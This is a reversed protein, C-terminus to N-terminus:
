RHVPERVEGAPEYLEPEDGIEQHDRPDDDELTTTRRRRERPDQRDDEQRDEPQDGVEQDPAPPDALPEAEPLSPRDPRDVLGPRQRRHVRAGVVHRRQLPPQDLEREVRRGRGETPGVDDLDVGARRCRVRRHLRRDGARGPRDAGLEVDPAAVRGAPTPDLEETFPRAGPHLHPDEVVVEAGEARRVLDERRQPRGAALDEAVAGQTEPEPELARPDVEAVVALDEGDVPRGAEDAAEVDAVLVRPDAGPAPVVEQDRERAVRDEAELGDEELVPDRGGAVRGAEIGVVGPVRPLHGEGLEVPRRAPRRAPRHDLDDRGARVQRRHARDRGLEGRRDADGLLPDPDDGGVEDRVLREEEGQRGRREAADVDPHQDGRERGAVDQHDPEGPARVVIVHQRGPAPDEFERLRHDVGLAQEDVLM